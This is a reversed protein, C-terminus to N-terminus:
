QLRNKANEIIINMGSNWSESSYLEELVLASDNKNQDLFELIADEWEQEFHPNQILKGLKGHQLVEPVGGLASAICYCGSHLAEILSLGFGEHWLTPFLYCDAIQYYKPVTDNPIQGLFRVGEVPTNRTAGVVLLIANKHFTNIKKWIPLIFDLGKKPVDRSCWIFIKKDKLELEDKLIEKQENSIKQFKSTDIGNHLVSFRCPLITYYEKHAKYSDHTLLVMEDITEYFYRSALNGYFPAFGHYFFQLFCNKRLGLQLLLEQLPKVIGFNDVIQIVYKEEENLNKKLAQLYNFYPKKKWRKFFKYKKSQSVFEYKVNDFVKEPQECIVYDIQNTGRLYNTYLTTWSGTKHYPLAFQSILIVKPM